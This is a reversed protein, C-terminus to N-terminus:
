SRASSSRHRSYERSLLHPASQTRWPTSPTPPCYPHPQHQCRQPYPLSQHSSKPYGSSSTTFPRPRYHQFATGCQSATSLWQVFSVSRISVGLVVLKVYRQQHVVTTVLQKAVSSREQLRPFRTPAAFARQVNFILSRTMMKTLPWLLTYLSYFIVGM